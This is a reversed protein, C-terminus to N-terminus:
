DTLTNNKNDVMVIYDNLSDVVTDNVDYSDTVFSLLPYKIKVADELEAIREIKIGTLDPTYRISRILSVINDDAKIEQYEKYTKLMHGLISKKIKKYDPHNMMRAYVSDARSSFKNSVYDLHKAYELKNTAFWSDLKSNIYDKANIWKPNKAVIKLQGKKFLHIITHGDDKFFGLKRAMRIFECYNDLRAGNYLVHNREIEFYIGGDPLNGPHTYENWHCSWYSESMEPIKIGAVSTDKAGRIIKPPRELESVKMTPPNGIAELIKNLDEGNSKIVYITSDRFSRSNKTCHHMFWTRPREVDGVFIFLTRDPHFTVFDSGRAKCLTTFKKNERYGTGKFLIEMKEFTTLNLTFSSTLKHDPDFLNFLEYNNSRFDKIKLCKEWETGQFSAIIKDFEQKLENYVQALKTNINAVTEKNYSLAERSAAVELEGIPFEIEMHLYRVMKEISNAISQSGFSNTNLPYAVHGQILKFKDSSYRDGSFYKWNTGELTPAKIEFDLDPINTKPLPTFYKLFIKANDRFTRMDIDKVPVQVEISNEAKIAAEHLLSIKPTGDESIFATYARRVGDFISTVSFTDVYSFPSKSGLGFAGVFDNSQNKTSEFYTSYLHIVDEHSLGTGFDKVAFWPELSTPLHVEFPIDKKGAQVHSDYANCSLERIVAGIKNSYLGDSLIKFAKGSAKISFAKENDIGSREIVTDPALLKM